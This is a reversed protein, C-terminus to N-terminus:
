APAGRIEGLVPCETCAVAEDSSGERTKIKRVVLAGLGFSLPVEPVVSVSSPMEWCGVAPRPCKGALRLARSKSMIVGVSSALENSLECRDPCLPPRDRLM